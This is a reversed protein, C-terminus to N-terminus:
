SPPKFRRGVLDALHALATDRDVVGLTDLEAHLVRLVEGVMPGEPVGHALVDKGTCVPPPPEPPLESLMTEAMAHVALSGHSGLCDARHFDLHAAFRPSRLWRERKSKGMESLSAFRIHDRSVEVVAERLERPARFRRLIAMAMQASLTDHGHFRIRDSAREFTLPKGIDHLVAAWAQVPDGARVADLVMCTHALVDGEPHFQPPQPVGQMAVVEPLAEDAVGLEILLRLANGRGPGTWARTLEEFVREPSLVRLHPACKRLAAATKTEVQLDYGAAFRVARLIRLPDERLRAVPDGVVRLLRAALDAKGHCPDLVAGSWPDMYIANVTFDRRPADRVPDDVFCVRDPHRQDSYDAEERFTTITLERDALAVGVVGLAADIIRAQSLQQVVQPPHLSTAVDYDRTARSLMGDRVAGGVLWVQA